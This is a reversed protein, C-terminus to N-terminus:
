LRHSCRELRYTMVFSFFAYHIFEVSGVGDEEMTPHSGMVTVGVLRGNNSKLRHERRRLVMKVSSFQLTVTAGM